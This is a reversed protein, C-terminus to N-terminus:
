QVEDVKEVRFRGYRPRWDGVGVFVGADTIMREVEGRPFVETMYSVEVDAAWKDFKPRTRVVRAMSVRVPVALRFRKDNWLSEVDKPGDYELVADREIFMGASANKGQKAKKAGGVFSAELVRAPLVVQGDESVYLSAHWELEAMKAYDAEVKKKKSSINKIAKAFDDNPDVTRGNHMLMPAVSVLRFKLRKYGEM